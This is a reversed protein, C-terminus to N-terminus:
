DFLNFDEDSMTSVTKDPHEYFGDLAVHKGPAFRAKRRCNRRYPHLFVFHWGHDRSM